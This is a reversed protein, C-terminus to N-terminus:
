RPYEVRTHHISSLMKQFIKKAKQIDRFTLDSNVFQKERVLNEIVSEVLQEIALEDPTKLSRAAAEVSDAMMLVATEKSYPLPGPYRFKKEDMIEDPFNKLYSRYFYQVMTTGHHTRIFDTLQEPLNNKKAIEIGNLVHKIIVAASEEFSINDHPNM